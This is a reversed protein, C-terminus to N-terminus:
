AAHKGGIRQVLRYIIPRHFLAVPLGRLRMVALRPKDLIQWRTNAVNENDQHRAGFHIIRLQCGSFLTISIKLSGIKDLLWKAVLRQRGLGM